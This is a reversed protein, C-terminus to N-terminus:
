QRCCYFVRLRGGSGIDAQCSADDEFPVEYVLPINDRYECGAARGQLFGRNWPCPRRSGPGRLQAEFRSTCGRRQLIGRVARFGRALVGPPHPGRSGLAPRIGM